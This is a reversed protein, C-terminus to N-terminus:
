VMSVTKSERSFVREGKPLDGDRREGKFRDGAGESFLPEMEPNGITALRWPDIECRSKEPTSEGPFNLRRNERLKLMPRSGAAGADGTMLGHAPLALTEAVAM